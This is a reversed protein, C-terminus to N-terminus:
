PRWRRRSRRWRPCPALATLLACHTPPPHQTKSTRAHTRTHHTQTIHAIRALAGWCVSPAAAAFNVEKALVWAKAEAEQLGLPLGDALYGEHPPGSSVLEAGGGNAGGGNAGGDAEGDALYGSRFPSPSEEGWSSGSHVFGGPRFRQGQSRMGGGQHQGQQGQSAKLEASLRNLRSSLDAVGNAAGSSAILVLESELASM